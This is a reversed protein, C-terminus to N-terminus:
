CQPKGPFNLRAFEGYLKKAEEDYRKAAAEGTSFTGLSITKKNISIRVEYAYGSPRTRRVVGIYGSSNNKFKRRNHNNLTYDSLRLNEKQNNMPNNDKHDIIKNMLKLQKSSYGLVINQVPEREIYAYKTGMVPKANYIRGYDEDDILVCRGSGLKGHLFIKKM